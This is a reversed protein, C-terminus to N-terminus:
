GTEDLVERARDHEAAPVLVGVEMSGFAWLGTIAGSGDGDIRPHLGAARLASAALDAIPRSPFSGVKVLDVVVEV